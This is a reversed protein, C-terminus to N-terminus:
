FFRHIISSFGSLVLPFFMKLRGHLRNCMTVLEIWSNCKKCCKGWGLLVINELQEVVQQTIAKNDSQEEVQPAIELYSQYVKPYNIM